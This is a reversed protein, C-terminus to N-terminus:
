VDDDDDSDKNQIKFYLMAYTDKATSVMRVWDRLSNKKLYRKTLYKFYRKSFHTCSNIVLMTSKPREFNVMDGLNNIRMNVKIHSKMYKELDVLDMLLDEVLCSCDIVFRQWVKKKGAAGKGRLQLKQAKKSNPKPMPKPARPKKAKAAETKPAALKEVEEKVTELNTSPKKPLVRLKKQPAPIAPATAEKTGPKGKQAETTANTRLKKSVVSSSSESSSVAQRKTGKGAAKKVADETEEAKKPLSKLAVAPAKAVKKSNMPPPPPAPTDAAVRSKGSAAAASTTTAAKGKATKPKE